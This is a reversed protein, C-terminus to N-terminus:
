RREMRLRCLRGPPLTFSVRARRGTVELTQTEIVEPGATSTLTYQGPELLYFEAGMPRTADGFHFLEAQLRHKAQGSVLTAIDRPPTLWRVANLPFYDTTGPDGTAISYLVGPSPARIEPIAKKIIGDAQMRNDIWWEIIDALRELGERQYIAWEPAGVAAAHQTDSPIPTGLYMQTIRNQPFAEAAKEFFGRAVDLCSEKRGPIKWVGGSELAYWTVMRGRYLHTLPYLPSDAAVGFDYDMTRSVERGFYDLSRGDLWREIEQIIRDLDRRAAEDLDSRRHLDRLITVRTADSDANGARRIPADMRRGSAPVPPVTSLGCMLVVVGILSRIQM